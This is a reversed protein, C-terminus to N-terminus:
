ELGLVGFGEGSNKTSEHRPSCLISGLIHFDKDYIGM